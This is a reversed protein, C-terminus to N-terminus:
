RELLALFADVCELTVREADEPAIDWQAMQGDVNMRALGYVLARSMLEIRPIGARAAVPGLGTETILQISLNRAARIDRELAASSEIEILDRASLIKFHTPNRLAWLVFAHALRRLRERAPAGASRNMGGAIELMFRRMAEEAVATMLATRSAFHRFPAGSSVGVRRAAQRVSVSEAGEEAALDASAEILAQRLNGHHYTKRAPKAARKAAPKPVPKPAPSPVPKRVLRAV